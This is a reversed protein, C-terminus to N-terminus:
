TPRLAILTTTVRGNFATSDWDFDWLEIRQHVLDYDHSRVYAGHSVRDKNSQAALPVAAVICCALVRANWPM